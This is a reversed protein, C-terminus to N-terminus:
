TVGDSPTQMLIVRRFGSFHCRKAFRDASIVSEPALEGPGAGLSPPKDMRPLDSLWVCGQNKPLSRPRGSLVLFWIRSKMPRCIFILRSKTKPYVTEMTGNASDEV